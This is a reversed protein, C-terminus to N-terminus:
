ITQFITDYIQCLNLAHIVGQHNYFWFAGQKKWSATWVQTKDASIFSCFYTYNSLNGLLRLTSEVTFLGKNDMISITSNYLSGEASPPDTSWTVQPVPYTNHTSCTFTEETMEMIM